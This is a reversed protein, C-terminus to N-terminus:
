ENVLEIGNETILIRRQKYLRGLGQKFAKKSTDFTARIAEPTSKDNFPMAGGAAELKELIIQSVGDVRGYGSPDRRLDIKGDNHVKKIYGTFQDGPELQDSTEQHYLLGRYRKDIISKFGLPSDGYILVHVADGVEYPPKEAPLHNHLRTSAVVRNTYEDVYVAVIAGDGETFHTNGQERYPLLLDKSLGWDLFAGATPHVSIVELYAFEGAQAYPKETTAVLRDESDNYVFVEVESGISMDPTVYRTPMLIKDHPGGDLYLGHDSKDLVTLTNYRGINAM